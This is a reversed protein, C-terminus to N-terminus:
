YEKFQSILEKSARYIEDLEEFNLRVEGPKIEDHCQSLVLFPGGAEDDISIHTATEGYVPNMDQTHVAVKLITTKYQVM